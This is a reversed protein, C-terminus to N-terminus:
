IVGFGDSKGNQIEMQIETQVELQSEIRSWRFEDSDGDLKGNSEM